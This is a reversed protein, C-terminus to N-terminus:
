NSLTSNTWIQSSYYILTESSKPYTESSSPNISHQSSVYTAIGHGGVVYKTVYSSNLEFYYNENNLMKTDGIHFGTNINGRDSSTACYETDGTMYTVTATNYQYAFESGYSGLLSSSNVALDSYVAVRTLVDINNTNYYYRM